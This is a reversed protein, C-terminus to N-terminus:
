SAANAITSFADCKGPSVVNKDFYDRFRKAWEPSWVQTRDRTAIASLTRFRRRLRPVSDQNLTPLNEAIVPLLAEDWIRAVAEVPTGPPVHELLDRVDAGSRVDAFKEAWPRLGWRDVSLNALKVVNSEFATRMAANLEPDARAAVHALLLVAKYEDPLRTEERLAALARPEFGRRGLFDALTDFTLGKKKWGVAQLFRGFRGPTPTIALGEGAKGDPGILPMMVDALDSLKMDALMKDEIKMAEDFEKKGGYLRILERRMTMKPVVSMAGRALLYGPGWVPLLAAAAVVPHGTLVALPAVVLHSFLSIAGAQAGTNTTARSLTETIHHVIPRWGIHSLATKVREWRTKPIGSGKYEDVVQQMALQIKEVADSERPPQADIDQAVQVGMRHLITEVRVGIKMEQITRDDLGPPKAPAAPPSVLATPPPTVL